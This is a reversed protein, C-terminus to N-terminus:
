IRTWELTLGHKSAAEEIESADIATESEINVAVHNPGYRQVVTPRGGFDIRCLDNLFMRISTEIGKVVLHHVVLPTSARCNKEIGRVKDLIEELIDQQDRRVRKGSNPSQHLAANYAAEIDPWWKDLILQLTTAEIPDELNGNLDRLLIAFGDRSFLRHQFQSLPGSIDAPEMSGILLGCARGNAHKTLAGAEFLLWASGLNEPTLCLIGYSTEGLERTLETNWRSGSEISHKSLFPELQQILLPLYQSLIEAVRESLPGSWSLFIKM